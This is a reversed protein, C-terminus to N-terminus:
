TRADDALAFAWQANAITRVHAMKRPGARSRKVIVPKDSQVHPTVPRCTPCACAMEVSIAPPALPCREVGQPRGADPLLVMEVPASDDSCGFSTLTLVLLFLYSLYKMTLNSGNLM